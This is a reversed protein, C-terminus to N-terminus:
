SKEFQFRPSNLYEFSKRRRYFMKTIFDYIDISDYVDIAENLDFDYLMRFTVPVVLSSDMENTLSFHIFHM